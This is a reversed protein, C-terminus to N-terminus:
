CNPCRILGPQKPFVLDIDVILHLDLFRTYYRQKLHYLLMLDHLKEQSPICFCLTAIFCSAKKLPGPHM